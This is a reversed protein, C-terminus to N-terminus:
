KFYTTTQGTIVGNFTSLIAQIEVNKFRAEANLIVSTVDDNIEFDFIKEESELVLELENKQSLSIGTLGIIHHAKVGTLLDIGNIKNEDIKNQVEAPAADFIEWYEQATVNGAFMMSIFLGFISLHRM